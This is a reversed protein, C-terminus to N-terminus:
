TNLANLATALDTKTCNTGPIITDGAPITTTSIYLNNGIIFYKGSAIQADATMDDDAPVNVKQIYLKTDARYEARVNGCNAWINNNGLITNFLQVATISYRLPTKLEYVLKQGTIAATLAAATTYRDDRLALKYSTSLNQPTFTNNHSSLEARSAFLYKYCSCFYSDAKASDGKVNLTGFDGQFCLLGEITQTTWTIAGMDIIAKDVVLEGTGDENITLTGGYVPGAVSPFQVTLVPAASPNYVAERYIIAAEWAGLPRVNDPSPDGSGEQAPEIRVVLKNLPMSGAGDPLSAIAGSAFDIIIPAKNIKLDDVVDSLADFEAQTVEGPEGPPGQPGQPGTPGVPGQAGATGPVGQPGQPGQLGTMGQPGQPGVPGPDGPVGQPGQPGQPGTQGPTGESSHGSDIYTETTEDWLYWNGNNGIAPTRPWAHFDEWLKKMQKILWDLNVDQLKTSPFKSFFM